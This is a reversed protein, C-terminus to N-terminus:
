WCKICGYQYIQVNPITERTVSCSKKNHTKQPIKNNKDSLIELNDAGYFELLAKRVPGDGDKTMSTPDANQQQLDKAAKLIYDAERGIPADPPLNASCDGKHDVDNSGCLIEDM